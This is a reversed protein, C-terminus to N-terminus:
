DDELEHLVPMVWEPLTKKKQVHQAPAHVRDGLAFELEANWREQRVELDRNRGSSQTGCHRRQGHIAGGLQIDNQAQSTQHQFLGVDPRTEDLADPRECRADAVARARGEFGKGRLVRQGVIATVRGEEGAMRVDHFVEKDVGDKAALKGEAFVRHPVARGRGHRALKSQQRRLEREHAPQEDAYRPKMARRERARVNHMRHLGCGLVELM